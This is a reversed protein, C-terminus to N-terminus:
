HPLLPVCRLDGSAARTGPNTLPPLRDRTFFEAEAIERPNQHGEERALDRMVFVAIHDGPFSAFNAFVGHLM